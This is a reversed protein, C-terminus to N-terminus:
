QGITKATCDIFLILFVSISGIAIFLMGILGRSKLVFYILPILYCAFWMVITPLNLLQRRQHEPVLEFLGEHLLYNELRNKLM